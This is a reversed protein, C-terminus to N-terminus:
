TVYILISMTLYVCVKLMLSEPQVVMSTFLMARQEPTLQGDNNDDYLDSFKKIFQPTMCLAYRGYYVFYSPHDIFLWFFQLQKLTRRCKVGDLTVGKGWRYALARVRVGYLFYYKTWLIFGTFIHFSIFVIHCMNWRESNCDHVSQIYHAQQHTIM